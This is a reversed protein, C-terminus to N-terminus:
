PQPPTAAVEAAKLRSTAGEVDSAVKALRDANMDEGRVLAVFAALDAFTWIALIPGRRDYSLRAVAKTKTTKRQKNM